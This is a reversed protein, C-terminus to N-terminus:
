NGKSEEELPKEQPCGMGRVTYIIGSENSFVALGCSSSGILQAAYHQRDPSVVVSVRYNKLTGASSDLLPLTTLWQEHEVNRHSQSVLEDLSLYQHGPEQFAVAQFTNITRMAGLAQWPPLADAKEPPHPRAATAVISGFLGSLLLLIPIARAKM